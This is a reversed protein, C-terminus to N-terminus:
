QSPCLGSRVLRGACVRQNALCGTQGRGHSFLCPRGTVLLSATITGRSRPTQHQQTDAAAPQNCPTRRRNAAQHESTSTTRLSGPVTMPSAEACSSGFALFASSPHPSIPGLCPLSPTVASYTGVVAGPGGQTAPGRRAIKHRDLRVRPMRPRTKSDRLPWRDRVGQITPIARSAIVKGSTPATTAARRGRVREAPDETYDADGIAIVM